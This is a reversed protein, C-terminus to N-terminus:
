VRELQTRKMRAHATRAKIALGQRRWAETDTAMCGRIRRPKPITVTM